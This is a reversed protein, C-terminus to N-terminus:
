DKCNADKIDRLEYENHHQMVDAKLKERLNCLDIHSICIGLELNERYGKRNFFIHSNPGIFLALQEVVWYLGDEDLFLLALGIAM